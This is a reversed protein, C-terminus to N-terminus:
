ELYNHTHTHTHTHTNFHNWIVCATVKRRKGGGERERQAHLKYKITRIHMPITKIKLKKINNHTINNLIKNNTQICIYIYTHTHTHTHAEM